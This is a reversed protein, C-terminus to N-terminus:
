LSAEIEKIIGHIHGRKVLKTALIKLETPRLESLERRADDENKALFFRLYKDGIADGLRHRPLSVMRERVARGEPGIFWEMATARNARTNKVTKKM